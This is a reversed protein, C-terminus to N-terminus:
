DIYGGDKLLKIEEATLDNPEQEYLKLLIKIKLDYMRQPIVHTANCKDCCTGTSKIPYPNNGYGNFPKGCICCVQSEAFQLLYERLQKEGDARNSLTLAYEKLQKRSRTEFKNFQIKVKETDGKFNSILVKNNGTKEEVIFQFVQKFPYKRFGTRVLVRRTLVKITKM